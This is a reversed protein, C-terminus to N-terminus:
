TVEHGRGQGQVRVFTIDNHLVWRGRGVYSTEDLDSLFISPRVSPRVNQGAKNPWRPLSSRFIRSSRKHVIYELHNAHIEHGDSWFGLLLMQRSPVELERMNDIKASISGQGLRFRDIHGSAFNYYENLVMFRCLKMWISASVRDSPPRWNEGIKPM